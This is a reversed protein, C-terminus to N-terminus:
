GCFGTAGLASTVFACFSPVAIADAEALQPAVPRSRVRVLIERL